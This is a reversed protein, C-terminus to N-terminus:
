IQCMNQKKLNGPDNNVFSRSGFEESRQLKRNRKFMKKNLYLM